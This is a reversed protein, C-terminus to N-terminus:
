GVSKRDAIEVAVPDLDCGYLFGDPASAELIAFAHGGGGLTGDVYKGGSRPQLAELVEKLM